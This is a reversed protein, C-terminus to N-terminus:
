SAPAPDAGDAVTAYPRNEVSITIRGPVYRDEAYEVVDGVSDTTVRRVRLLPAGPDVGLHEAEEETAAVADLDHTSSYLDVGSGLLFANISGSDPDWEMLRRGVPWVFHMQELVAPAGDLRRVRRITVVQEGEDVQLRTALEAGARHRAQEITRQGVEHGAGHAWATLSGLAHASTTSAANRRVVPPRGRGGVILGEDRLTALAQRIPGRSTGFEERLSAESPASAGEPWRGDAIRLRFESALRRHLPIPM